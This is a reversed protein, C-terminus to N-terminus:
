RVFTIGPPEPEKLECYVYGLVGYSSADQGGDLYAETAMSLYDGKKVTKGNAMDCFKKVASNFGTRKDTGGGIQVDSVAMWTDSCSSIDDTVRAEGEDAPIASSSPSTTPTTTANRIVPVPLNNLPTAKELPTLTYRTSREGAM